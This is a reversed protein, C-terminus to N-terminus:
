RLFGAIRVGCVRRLSEAVIRKRALAPREIWHWSLAACLLILPLSALLNNLPTGTWPVLAQQIPFAYIYVGYSLDRGRLGPLRVAPLRFAVWLLLYPWVLLLALFTGRQLVLTVAIWAACL